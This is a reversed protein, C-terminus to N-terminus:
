ADGKLGTTFTRWALEAAQKPTAEGKRVMEWGAYILAEYTEAIWLTPIAASLAGEAKAAEIEAILERQGEDYKAAIESAREVPEMALFGQRDGLPIIAALSLRLGDMHSTAQRTAADVAEDLEEAAVHALAIMLDDRGKFHRHLTARGVGAAQAIDGLSAGPRKSFTQFAAELIAERADPRITKM